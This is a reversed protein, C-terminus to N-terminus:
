RGNHEQEYWARRENYKQILQEISYDIPRNTGMKLDAPQRIPKIREKILKGADFWKEPFGFYPPNAEYYNDIPYVYYGDEMNEDASNGKPLYDVFPTNVGYFTPAIKIYKQERNEKKCQEAYNKTAALLEDESYGERIRAQYCAYARKKEGKRPYASYAEEFHLSYINSKDLRNKDLRNKDVSVNQICNTDMSDGNLTYAKNKKLTLMNKEEIYDTPKYRDSQIYNHMKWHKIVIIGSEFLIIFSKAILLKMDDDNAGVLRQIRKPSNVFGDDDAAMNLHFYLCQTSMPMDLFADSETIKKTFMRKEAM